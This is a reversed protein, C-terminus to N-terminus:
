IMGSGTGCVTLIARATDTLFSVDDATLLARGSTGAGASLRQNNGATLSALVAIWCKPCRPDFWYVDASTIPLESWSCADPIGDDEHGHLETGADTEAVAFETVLRGWEERTIM